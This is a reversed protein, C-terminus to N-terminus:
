ALGHEALLRGVLAVYEAMAGEAGMGKRTSWADFKARARLDLMGPRTGQVDGETAQKYLGYLDLLTKPPPAKPLTKVRAVADDFAKRDM